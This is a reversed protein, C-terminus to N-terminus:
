KQIYKLDNLLEVIRKNLIPHVANPAIENLPELVFLRNQMDIHPIALDDECVVFDDYFLIDLDLTRNGWRELRERGGQKEIDNLRALLDCPSYLTEMRVASNLFEFEAAGGYPLTKVRTSELVNRVKLDSTLCDIALDLYANRDGLNSGASLYVTHWGREISAAAYDFIGSMPADPKKVTLRVTKIFAFEILLAQTTQEALTEILDFCNNEAIKKITKKVASYSVTLKLDDTQAARATSCYIEATFLFRQPLRKEDPNVGHCARVEFDKLVIVDQKNNYIRM